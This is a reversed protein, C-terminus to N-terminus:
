PVRVVSGPATGELARLIAPVVPRLDEVKSSVARVIVVAIPLERLNQMFPMSSDLTLLVEIGKESASRLLM